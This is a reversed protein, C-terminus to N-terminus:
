GSGAVGQVVCNKGVPLRIIKNQEEQITSVISKLRNDASQTLFPTLFEDNSIKDEFDYISKVEGEKFVIQRKLKLDVQYKNNLATYESEGIRGNYYLDAISARWDVIKEDSNTQVDGVSVRGIYGMFEEADNIDTFILKAVLDNKHMLVIDMNEGRKYEEKNIHL